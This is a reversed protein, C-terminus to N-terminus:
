SGAYLIITDANLRGNVTASKTTLDKVTKLKRMKPSQQIINLTDEPKRLRKSYSADESFNIISSGKVTMPQEGAQYVMIKRQKVNYLMIVSSSVLKEPKESVLNLDAFHELYKVKSVLKEVSVPKRKRPKREPKSINVVYNCASELANVFKRVMASDEMDIAYTSKFYDIVQKAQQKKVVPDANLLLKKLDVVEDDVLYDDLAVEITDLLPELKALPNSTKPNSGALGPGDQDVTQPDTAPATNLAQQIFYVLKDTNSEIPSAGPLSKAYEVEGPHVDPAGSLLLKALNKAIPPIGNLGKNSLCKAVDDKSYGNSLMWKSLFDNGDKPSTNEYYYQLVRYKLSHYDRGSMELADSLDYLHKSPNRVSADEVQKVKPRKAM